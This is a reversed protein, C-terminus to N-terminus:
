HKLLGVGGPISHDFAPGRKKLKKMEDVVEEQERGVGRRRKPIRLSEMGREERASMKKGVTKWQCQEKISGEERRHEFGIHRTSAMLAELPPM